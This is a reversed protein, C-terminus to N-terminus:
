HNKSNDLKPPVEDIGGPHLPHCKLIRKVSLWSGILLGHEKLASVAYQSCTPHFRCNQGILPSLLIQYLRILLLPIAIIVERLTKRAKEM